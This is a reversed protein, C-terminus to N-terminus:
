VAASHGCARQTIGTLKSIFPSIRRQPNVFTQFTDLTRGDQFKVAGIEIVADKANDLGTTELDFAIWVDNDPSTHQPFM